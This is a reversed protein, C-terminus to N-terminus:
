GDAHWIAAFVFNFRGFNIEATPGFLPAESPPGFLALDIKQLDKEIGQMLRCLDAPWGKLNEPTYAVVGTMHRMYRFAVEQVAESFAAMKIPFGRRTEEDHQPNLAYRALSQWQAETFGGKTMWELRVRRWATKIAIVKQDIEEQTM